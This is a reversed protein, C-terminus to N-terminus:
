LINRQNYIRSVKKNSTKGLAVSDFPETRLTVPRFLQPEVVAPSGFRRASCSTTTGAASKIFLLWGRCVTAVFRDQDPRDPQWGNKVHGTGDRGQLSRNSARVRAMAGVAGGYIM